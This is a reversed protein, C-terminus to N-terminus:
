FVLTNFIQDVEDRFDGNYYIKQVHILRTPTAFLWVVGGTQDAYPASYTMKNVSAGWLTTKEISVNSIFDAQKAYGILNDTNWKNPNDQCHVSVAGAGNYYPQGNPKIEFEAEKGGTEESRPLFMFRENPRDTLKWNGYEGPKPLYLPAAPITFTVPCLSSAIKKMPAPSLGIEPTIATRTPSEPPTSTADIQPKPTPTTPLQSIAPSASRFKWYSFLSISAVIIIALLLFFSWKYPTKQPTPNTSAIPSTNRDKVM